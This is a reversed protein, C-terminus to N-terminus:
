LNAHTISCISFNVLFETVLRLVYFKVVSLFSGSPFMTSEQYWVVMNNGEFIRLRILGIKLCHLLLWHYTVKECWGVNRPDKWLLKVQLPILISTFSIAPYIRTSRSSFVHRDCRNIQSGLTGCHMGWRDRDPRPSFSSPSSAQSPWWESCLWRGTRKPTRGCWPTSNTIRHLFLSCKLLM